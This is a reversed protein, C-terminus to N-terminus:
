HEMDEELQRCERHMKLRGARILKRLQPTSECRSPRFGIWKPFLEHAIRWYAAWTDNNKGLILVSRHNFLPRLVNISEFSVDTEDTWVLGGSLYEYFPRAFWKPRNISNLLQAHANLATLMENDEDAM